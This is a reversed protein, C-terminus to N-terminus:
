IRYPPPIAADAPLFHRGDWLKSGARNGGNGPRLGCQQHYNWRDLTMLKWDVFCFLDGSGMRFFSQIMTRMGRFQMELYAVWRGLLTWGLVRVSVCIMAVRFQDLWLYFGRAELCKAFMTNMLCLLEESCGMDFYHCLFACIRM